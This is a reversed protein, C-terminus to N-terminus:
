DPDTRAAGWASDPPAVHDDDVRYLRTAQRCSDEQGLIVSLKSLEERPAQSASTVLHRLRAVSLLQELSQDFSVLVVSAMIREVDDKRVDVHGM